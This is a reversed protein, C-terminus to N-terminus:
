SQLDKVIDYHKHLEAKIKEVSMLEAKNKDTLANYLGKYSDLEAQLEGEKIKIKNYAEKMKKAEIDGIYNKMKQQLIINAEKEKYYEDQVKLLSRENEDITRELDKIEQEKSAITKCLKENKKILNGQKTQLAMMRVKLGAEEAPKSRQVERAQM